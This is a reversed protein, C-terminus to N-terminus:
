KKGYFRQKRSTPAAPPTGAPVMKPEALNVTAKAFTRILAPHNGLGTKQLVSYLEGQQEPTGGHRRIFENAAAASVDKKDGGIEPDKIFSEYWNKTQDKWSKQYAETITNIAAQVSSIHKDIIQQGFKQVLAHDAKTMQEFEGFMKNVEALQAKDIVVDEPFKWPEYSPLPAPEDSQSAKEKNEGEPQPKEASVTAPETKIEPKVDTSKAEVPKDAVVPKETTLSDKVVPEAAPPTDAIVPAAEVPAAAASLVVPTEVAPVAAPPAAAVPAPNQVPESM